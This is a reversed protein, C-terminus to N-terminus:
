NINKGKIGSTVIESLWDDNGQYYFATINLTTLEKLMDERGAKLFLWDAWEKKLPIKSVKNLYLFFSERIKEESFGIIVFEDKVRKLHIQQPILIAHAIGSALSKMYIRWKNEEKAFINREVKTFLDIWKGLMLSSWLGKVATKNGFMSMFMVENEYLAYADTYVELGGYAIKEVRTTNTGM